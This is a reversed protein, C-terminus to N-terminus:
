ETRNRSAEESFGEPYREKLKAINGYAIQTLSLGMRSAIDAIYWLCDGLEKELKAYDMQHGHGVNKKILEIVEGTEGALGLASILLGKDTKDKSTTRFADKQYDYWSM